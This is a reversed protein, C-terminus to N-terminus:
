RDAAPHESAGDAPPRRRPADEGHRKRTTASSSETAAEHTPAGPQSPAQVTPATTNPCGDARGRDLDAPRTLHRHARPPDRHARRAQGRRRRRPHAPQRAAARAPAAAGAAAMRFSRRRAGRSCPWSRRWGPGLGAGAGIGTTYALAATVLELLLLPTWRRRNPRRVRPGRHRSADAPSRYPRAARARTGVLLGGAALVLPPLGNGEDASIVVYSADGVIAGLAWEVRSTSIVATDTLTQTRRRGSRPSNPARSGLSKAGLRKVGWSMGVARCSAPSVWLTFTDQSM